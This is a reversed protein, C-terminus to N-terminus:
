SNKKLIKINTLFFLASRHVPQTVPESRTKATKKQNAPPITKLVLRISDLDLERNSRDSRDIWNQCGQNIPDKYLKPIFVPSIPKFIMKTGTLERKKPKLGQINLDKPKLGDFSFDTPFDV